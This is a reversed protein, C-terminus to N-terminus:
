IDKHIISLQEPELINLASDLSERLRRVQLILKTNSNKLAKNEAELIEYWDIIEDTKM